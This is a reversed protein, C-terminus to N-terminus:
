IERPLKKFDRGPINGALAQQKTVLLKNVSNKLIQEKCEAMKKVCTDICNIENETMRDTRFDHICAQFCRNTYTSITQFYEEVHLEELNEMKYSRM